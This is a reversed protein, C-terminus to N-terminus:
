TPDWAYDPAAIIRAHAELSAQVGRRPDRLADLRAVLADDLASADDDLCVATAAVRAPDLSKPIVAAGKQLAWRLVVQAPTLGKGQDRAVAAVTEDDLLGDASWPVSDPFYKALWCGGYPSYAVPVVNRAVCAALLEAQYCRPSLEIENLAPPIRSLALTEDMLGVDFNSLGLHRVLGEDVMAELERWAELRVSRADLGDVDRPADLLLPWHLAVADLYDLGMRALSRSVQRRMRAKPAERERTCLDVKALVFVAERKGFRRLGEGVAEESGYNQATDVLLVGSACGAEVAKAMKEFDPGEASGLGVRPLSLPTRTTALALNM